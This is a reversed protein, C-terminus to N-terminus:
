NVRGERAALARDRISRATGELLLDGRVRRAFLDLSERKVPIRWIRFPDLPASNGRSGGVVVSRFYRKTELMARRDGVGWPFAFDIRERGLLERLVSCSTGLEEELM